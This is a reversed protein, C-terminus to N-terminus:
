LRVDPRMRQLAATLQPVVRRQEAWSILSVVRGAHTDGALDEVNAGVDVALARLEDPTLRETM